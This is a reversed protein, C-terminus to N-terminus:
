EAGDSRITAEEEVTISLPGATADLVLDQITLTKPTTDCTGNPCDNDDECADGAKPGSVCVDKSEFRLTLRDSGGTDETTIDLHAITVNTLNIQLWSEDTGGHSAEILASYPDQPYFPIPVGDCNGTATVDWVDADNWDGECWCLQQARQQQQFRCNLDDVCPRIWPIPDSIVCPTSDAGVQPALTVLCLGACAVTVLKLTKCRMTGDGKQSTNTARRERQCLASARWLIHQRDAVSLISM